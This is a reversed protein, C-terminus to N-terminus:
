ESWEAWWRKIDDSTLLVYGKEEAYRKVKDQKASYGDDGMIEVITASPVEGAMIMLATALETHGERSKLLGDAARLLMVHGPSRFNEVFQEEPDKISDVSGLLRAFESVTLARDKDPIGTFTKRHNISISFSSREDYPLDKPILRSLFDNSRYVDTMYPLNLKDGSENTFTTCILGGGEKRMLKIHEWTIRSSSVVIDTEGERNEGDYILVPRGSRVANMVSEFDAVNEVFEYM